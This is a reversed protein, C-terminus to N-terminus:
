EKKDIYRKLNGITSFDETMKVKWKSDSPLSDEHQKLFNLPRCDFQNKVGDNDYDRNPRLTPNAWKAEAWNMDKKKTILKIGWISKM